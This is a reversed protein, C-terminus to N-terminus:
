MNQVVNNHLVSVYLSVNVGPVPEARLVRVLAVLEPAVDASLLVALCDLLFLYEGVPGSQSHSCRECFLEDGPGRVELGDQAGVVLLVLSRAALVAGVQRVVGAFYGLVVDAARAHIAEVGLRFFVAVVAEVVVSVPAQGVLGPAALDSFEGPRHFVPRRLVAAPATQLVEEVTGVERINTRLHASTCIHLACQM